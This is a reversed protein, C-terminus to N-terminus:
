VKVAKCVTAAERVRDGMEVEMDGGSMGDDGLVEKQVQEDEEEGMVTHVVEDLVRDAAMNSIEDAKARLIAEFEKTMNQVHEKWSMVGDEGGQADKAVVEVGDSEVGTKLKKPVRELGEEERAQGDEFSGERGEGDRGRLWDFEAEEGNEDIGMKEVESDLEFYHDGIVVDLHEPILSPNHVGVLIRVFDSKRTTEMDVIQTSGLMSGVVWVELFECLEKRLGFM